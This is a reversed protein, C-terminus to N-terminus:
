VKAVVAVGEGPLADGPGGNPAAAAAEAAAVRQEHEALAPAPPPWAAAPAALPPPAPAALMKELTISEHVAICLLVTAALILYWAGGPRALLRPDSSGQFDASNMVATRLYGMAAALASPWAVFVVASAVAPFMLLKWAQAVRVTTMAGASCAVDFGQGEPGAIEYGGRVSFMRLLAEAGVAIYVVLCLIAITILFHILGVAGM